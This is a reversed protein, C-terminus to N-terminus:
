QLKIFKHCVVTNDGFTIRAIYFGPALTEVNLNNIGQSIVSKSVIGGDISLVEAIAQETNELQVNLIDSCPNPFVSLSVERRIHEQSLIINASCASNDSKNTDMNSNPAIAYLCISFHTGAPYNFLTGPFTQRMTDGPALAANSIV